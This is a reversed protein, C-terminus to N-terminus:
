CIGLLIVFQLCFQMQTYSTLISFILSLYFIQFAALNFLIIVNLPVVNFIIVSRKKSVISVSCLATNSYPHCILPASYLIQFSVWVCITVKNKVFIGLSILPPTPQFFQIDSYFCIFRFGERVGSVFILKLQILFQM